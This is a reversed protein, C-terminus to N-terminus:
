RKVKGKKEIKRAERAYMLAAERLGNAWAQMRVQEDEGRSYYTSDMKAAERYLRKSMRKLAKADPKM